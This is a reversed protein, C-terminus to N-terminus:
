HKKADPFYVINDREKKTSSQSFLPITLNMYSGKGKSNKTNYLIGHLELSKKISSWPLIYSCEKQYNIYSDLEEFPIGFGNDQINLVISDYKSRVNISVTKNNPLYIIVHSLISYIVQFVVDQGVNIKSAVVDCSLKIDINKEYAKFSIYSTVEQLLHNLDILSVKQNVYIKKSLILIKNLQNYNYSDYNESSNIEVQDIFLMKSIREIEGMIQNSADNIKDLGKIYLSARDIDGKLKKILSNTENLEEKYNKININLAKYYFSIFIYKTMMFVSLCVALLVFYYKIYRYRLQNIISGIHEKSYSIQYNLGYAANGNLQFENNEPKKPINFEVIIDEDRMIEKVKKQLEIYSMVVAVSYGSKLPKIFRIVNESENVNLYSNQINTLDHITTIQVTNFLSLNMEYGIFRENLRRIHATSDLYLEIKRLDEDLLNIILAEQKELKGRLEKKQNDIEYIYFIYMILFSLVGYVVISLPFILRKM